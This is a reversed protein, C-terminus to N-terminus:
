KLSAVEALCSERQPASLVEREKAGYSKLLTYVKRLYSSDNLDKAWKIANKGPDIPVKLQFILEKPQYVAMYELIRKLCAIQPFLEDTPCFRGIHFIHDPIFSRLSDNDFQISAHAGNELLYNVVEINGWEAARYLASRNGYPCDALYDKAGHEVLLKVFELNGKFAWYQLPSFIHRETVGGLDMVFPNVPITNLISLANKEKLFALIELLRDLTLQKKNWSADSERLELLLNMHGLAEVEEEKVAPCNYDSLVTSKIPFRHSFYQQIHQYMGKSTTEFRLLDPVDLNDLIHYLGELPLESFASGDYIPEKYRQIDMETTGQTTYAAYRAPSSWRPDSKSCKLCLGVLISASGLALCTWGATTGLQHMGAVGYITLIGIVLLIVGTAVTATRLVISCPAQAAHNSRVYTLSCSISYVNM